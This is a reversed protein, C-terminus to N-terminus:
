GGIRGLRIVTGVAFRPFISLGFDGDSAFAFQWDYQGRIGLRPNIMVTAGGGPQLAFYNVTFPEQYLPGVVTDYDYGEARSHLVGVLTQLFPSIRDTPHWAFRVGGLAAVDRYKEPCDSCDRGQSGDLEGILAWHRTGALTMQLNVGHMDGTTLFGASLDIQGARQALAADSSQLVEVAKIDSLPIMRAPRPRRARAQPEMRLTDATMEVFRGRVRSGDMLTIEIATQPALSAVTTRWDSAPNTAQRAEVLPPMVLLVLTLEVVFSNTIMTM